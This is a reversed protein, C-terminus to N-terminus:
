SDAGLCPQEKRNSCTGKNQLEECHAEIRISKMSPSFGLRRSICDELLNMHEDEFEVIKECDKCILHNHHPRSLFNPDYYKQDRAFDNEGLLGSAVLLPLTRYVTARSVSPDIKRAMELLEEATYHENTGFAAKLIADRQRTRRLGNSRLFEHLREQLDEAIM